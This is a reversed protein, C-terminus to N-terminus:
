FNWNDNIIIDPYINDYTDFIIQTNTLLNWTTGNDSSNWSPGTNTLPNTIERAGVRNTISTANSKIVIAYLNGSTIIISPSFTLYNWDRFIINSQLIQASCLDNGTPKNNVDTNKISVTIIKLPDITATGLKLGIKSINYSSNAIFTQSKQVTTYVDMDYFGTGNNYYFDRLM